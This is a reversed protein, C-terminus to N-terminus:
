GPEPRPRGEDVEGQQDQGLARRGQRRRHDQAPARRPPASDEWLQRRRLALARHRGGGPPALGSHALSDTARGEGQHCSTCGFKEIPHTTMLTSRWPHTRFQRPSSADTYNAAAAGMHCTQCRDVQEQDVDRDSDIWNM